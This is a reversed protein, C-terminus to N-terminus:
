GDGDGDIAKKLTDEIDKLRKDYYIKQGFIDRIYFVDSAEGGKTSVKAIHIYLALRTLASSITYLLGVRDRTQIDLVTYDDSVENDIRVRTPVAPTAKTDLISPTKVKGVLEEVRVRGSIVSELDKEISRLKAESTIPEGLVTNVQLVDLVIGNTLTNIQAGLINISNAAMVGTIMAFLGHLDYTCVVIETYEREEMLTTKMVCSAGSDLEKVAKLHKAISAPDNSLLYRRPMLGLYREVEESGMDGVLGTVEAKSREIRAGADEVEFGGRELVDLVKFYLE